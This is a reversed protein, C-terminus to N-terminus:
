SCCKRMRAKANQVTDQARVRELPTPCRYFISVEWFTRLSLFFLPFSRDYFSHWVVRDCSLYSLFFSFSPLLIVFSYLWHIVHILRKRRKRHTDIVVGLPWVRRQFNEEKAFWNSCFLRLGSSAFSFILSRMGREITKRIKRVKKMLPTM